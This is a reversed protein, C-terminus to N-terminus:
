VDENDKKTSIDQEQNKIDKNCLYYSIFLTVLLVAFNYMHYKNSIWWPDKYYYDLFSSIILIIPTIYYIYKNSISPKRTLVLVAIANSGLFIMLDRM